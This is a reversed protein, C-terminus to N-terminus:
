CTNVLTVLGVCTGIVVLSITILALLSQRQSRRKQVTTEADMGEYYLHWREKHLHWKPIPCKLSSLYNVKLKIRDQNRKSVLEKSLGSRKFEELLEGKIENDEEISRTYEQMNSQYDLYCKYNKFVGGGFRDYERNIVNDRVIAQVFRESGMSVLYVCSICRDKVEKYSKIKM